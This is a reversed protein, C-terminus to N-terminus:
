NVVLLPAFSVFSLSDAHLPLMWDPAVRDVVCIRSPGHEHEIGNVVVRRMAKLSRVVRQGLFGGGGTVVVRAM